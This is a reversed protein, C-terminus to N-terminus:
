EFGRIEQSLNPNERYKKNAKEAKDKVELQVNEIIRLLDKLSKTHNLSLLTNLIQTSNRRDMSAVGVLRKLTQAKTFVLEYPYLFNSSTENNM